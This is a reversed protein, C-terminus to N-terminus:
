SDNKSVHPLNSSFQYPTFKYSWFFANLQEYMGNTQRFYIDTIIKPLYKLVPLKCGNM